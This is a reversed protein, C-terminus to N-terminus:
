WLFHSPSHSTIVLTETRAYKSVM